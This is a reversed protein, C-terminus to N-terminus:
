EARSARGRTEIGSEDSGARASVGEVLSWKQLQRVASRFDKPPNATYDVRQGTSPHDFALQYAHLSVRALLPREETGQKLNFRRLKIKSLYLGDAGGYLPDVALPHGIAAMHVRVQHTRGTFLQLRVLAQERYSEVVEYATASEKGGHYDVRMRGGGRPDPGIPKDVLDERPHPTGSTIALYFKDASRDLFQANLNKHTTRDRAFVLIGSTDRDLRHVVYVEEYARRLATALNLKFPDFRDPVTLVGPDKNVVIVHEDAYLVEYGRTSSM